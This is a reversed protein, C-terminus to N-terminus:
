ETVYPQRVLHVGALALLRGLHDFLKVVYTMFRGHGLLLAAPLLAAYAPVAVLSRAVDRASFTPHVPSVAGRLLARRVL